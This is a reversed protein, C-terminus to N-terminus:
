WCLATWSRTSFASNRLSLQRRGRGRSSKSARVWNYLLARPWHSSFSKKAAGSIVVYWVVIYVCRACVAVCRGLFCATSIPHAVICLLCWLKVRCRCLSFNFPFLLSLLCCVKDFMMLPRAILVLPLSHQPAFSACSGNPKRLASQAHATVNVFSIALIPRNLSLAFVVALLAAALAVVIGTRNM